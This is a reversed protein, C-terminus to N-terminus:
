PAVVPRSATVNYGSLSVTVPKAPVNYASPSVATQVPKAPVNYGSASVTLYGSNKASPETIGNSGCATVLVLSAAVLLRKTITKFPHM